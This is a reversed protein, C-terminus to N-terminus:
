STPASHSRSRPPGRRGTGANTPRSRGRRSPSDQRTASSCLDVVKRGDVYACVAAGLEHDFGREFAEYVGEFGPEVTGHIPIDSM